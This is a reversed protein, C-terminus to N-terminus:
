TVILLVYKTCTLMFYVRLVYQAYRRGKCLLKKPRVSSAVRQPAKQLPWTESDVRNVRRIM